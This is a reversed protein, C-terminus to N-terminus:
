RRGEDRYAKWGEWNFPGLKMEKAHQSIRDLAELARQTDAETVVPLLILRASPKGHRTVVVEEGAEARDLLKGLNDEAEYIVNTAM